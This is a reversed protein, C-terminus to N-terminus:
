YLYIIPNPRDTDVDAHIFRKGIGIRNFGVLLLGTVIKFRGKGSTVRIDAALGKVHSSGAVGGVRRNHKRCRYGSTIIFAVGAEERAEDLMMVLGEDIKNRGCCKCNFEDLTFYKAM